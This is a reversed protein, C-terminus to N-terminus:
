PPDWIWHHTDTYSVFSLNSLSFLLLCTTISATIPTISGCALPCNLYWSSPSALFLIEWLAKSHLMTGVADENCVEPRRATLVYMEATKLWWTFILVSKLNLGFVVPIKLKEHLVSLVFYM